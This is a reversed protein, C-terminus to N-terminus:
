INNQKIFYVYGVLLTPNDEPHGLLKQKLCVLIHFFLKSVKFSDGAYFLAGVEKYIYFYVETHVFYFYAKLIPM